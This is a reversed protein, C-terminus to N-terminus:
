RFSIRTTRSINWTQWHVENKKRFFFFWHPSSSPFHWFRSVKKTNALPYHHGVKCTICGSKVKPKSARGRKGPKGEREVSPRRYLETPTQQNPSLYPSPSKPAKPQDMPISKSALTSLRSLLQPTIIHSISLGPPLVRSLPTCTGSANNSQSRNTSPAAVSTSGLFNSSDM